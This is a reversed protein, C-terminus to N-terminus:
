EVRAMATGTSGGPAPTGQIAFSPLGNYRFLQLPGHMWHWDAISAFPAMTGSRTRLNWLGIDEPAMRYPADAQVYVRKIRGQDVFDNVYAGGLAISLLTNIDQQSAGLAGARARDIDIKLQPQDDIGSYRVNALLPDERAIAL